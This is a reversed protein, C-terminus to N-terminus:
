ALGLHERARTLARCVQGFQRANYCLYLRIRQGRFRAWLEYARSQLWSGHEVREIEILETVPYRYGDSQFYRTTVTTNGDKYFVAQRNRTVFHDRGRPAQTVNRSAQM